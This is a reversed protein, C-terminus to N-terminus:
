AVKVRVANEMFDKYPAEIRLLGNNYEATTKDAQVPCCLSIGATYEIDERPASLTFADDRLRLDIDEKKVGPITVEIILKKDDESNYTCVDPSLKIREKEM